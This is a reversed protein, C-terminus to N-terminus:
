VSIIDDPPLHKYQRRLVDLQRRSMISTVRQQHVGDDVTGQERPQEQQQEEEWQQQRRALSSKLMAKVNAGVHRVRDRQLRRRVARRQEAGSIRLGVANTSVSTFGSHQKSRGVVPGDLVLQVDAIQKLQRKSLASGKQKQHYLDLVSGLMAAQLGLWQTLWIDMHVGDGGSNGGVYVLQLRQSAAYFGGHLLTAYRLDYRATTILQSKSPMIGVTGHFRIWQRIARTYRQWNQLYEVPKCEVVDAAVVFSHRKAFAAMGGHFREIAFAIDSRGDRKLMDVSPIYYNDDDDSNKNNINNDDVCDQKKIKKAKKTQHNTGSPVHASIVGPREWYGYRQEVYNNLERVVNAERQWFGQVKVDFAFRLGLKQAYYVWGGHDRIATALDARGLRVLCVSSPMFRRAELPQIRLIAELECRINADSFWDASDKDRNQNSSNENNTNTNTTGDGVSDSGVSGHRFVVPLGGMRKAVAMVGGHLAIGYVLDLRNRKHLTQVNPMVAPKNPSSSQEIFARLRRELNQFARWFSSPGHWVLHLDAAVTAFGGHRMVAYALDRRGARLLQDRRPMLGPYGYRATFTLLEAHVVSVDNWYGRPRKALTSPAPELGARRAVHTLGGHHRIGNLLDTRGGVILQRQLPMYGDCHSHAFGRLEAEVTRWVTWYHKEHRPAQQRGNTKTGPANDTSVNTSSAILGVLTAVHVIGGLSVIRNLLVVHGFRRLLSATPMYGTRLHGAESLAQAVARVRALTEDRYASSQVYSRSLRSNSLGLLSAIRHFGGHRHIAKILDHRGFRRLQSVSPVTSVCNTLVKQPRADTGDSAASIDTYSTIGTSAPVCYDDM